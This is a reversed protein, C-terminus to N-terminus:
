NSELKLKSSYNKLVFFLFGMMYARKPFLNINYYLHVMGCLWECCRVPSAPRNGAWTVNYPHDPLMLYDSGRGSLESGNAPV